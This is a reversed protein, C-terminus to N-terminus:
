CQSAGGSMGIGCSEVERGPRESGKKRGKADMRTRAGKEEWSCKNYPGNLEAPGFHAGHPDRKWRTLGGKGM